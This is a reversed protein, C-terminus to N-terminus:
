KKVEWINNIIEIEYVDSTLGFYFMARNSDYKVTFTDSNLPVRSKIKVIDGEFIMKGKIDKLGTYQTITELIIKESVNTWGVFYCGLVQTYEMTNIDIFRGFKNWYVWEGKIEKGDIVVTKTGNDCPHFGRFLIDM